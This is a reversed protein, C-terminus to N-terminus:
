APPDGDGRGVHDISAGMARMARAFLVGALVGGLLYSALTVAFRETLLSAPALGYDRGHTVLAMSVGWPLGFYRVGPSALM